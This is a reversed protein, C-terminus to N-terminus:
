KVNMMKYVADAMQKIKLLMMGASRLAEPDIDDKEINFEMGREAYWDNVAALMAKNASDLIADDDAFGFTIVFLTVVSAIANLNFNLIENM